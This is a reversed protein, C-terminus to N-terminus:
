YGEVDPCKEQIGKITDSEPNNNINVFGKDYNDKYLNLISKYEDLHDSDPM